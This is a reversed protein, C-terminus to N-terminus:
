PDRTECLITWAPQSCGQAWFTSTTGTPHAGCFSGRGPCSCGAGHGCVPRGFAQRYSPAYWTWQSAWAGGGVRVWRAWYGAVNAAPPAGVRHATSTAVGPEGTYVTVRGVGTTCSGDIVWVYNGTWTGTRWEIRLQNGSMVATGSANGLGTEQAGYRNGGAPTLTWTSAGRGPITQQWQGSVNCEGWATGAVLSIAVVLAAVVLNSRM